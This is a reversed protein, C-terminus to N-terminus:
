LYPVVYSQTHEIYYTKNTVTYKYIAKLLFLYTFLIRALYTM